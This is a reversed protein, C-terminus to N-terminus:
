SPATPAAPEESPPEGPAQDRRGDAEENGPESGDGAGAPERLLFVAVVMLVVGAITVSWWLLPSGVGYAAVLSTIGSYTMGTWM